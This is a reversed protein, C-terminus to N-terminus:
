ARWRLSREYFVRALRTILRRSLFTQWGIATPSGRDSEESYAQAASCLLTRRRVVHSYSSLRHRRSSGMAQLIRADHGVLANLIDNTRARAAILPGHQDVKRVGAVGQSPRRNDPERSCSVLGACDGTSPDIIPQFFLLSRALWPSSVYPHRMPSAILANCPIRHAARVRLQSRFSRRGDRRISM